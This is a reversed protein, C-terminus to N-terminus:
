LLPAEDALAQAGAEEEAGAGGDGAGAAGCLQFPLESLDWEGRAVCQLPPMEPRSPGTQTAADVDPRLVAGPPLQPPPLEAPEDRLV